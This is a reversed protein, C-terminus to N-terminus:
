QCPQSFFHLKMHKLTLTESLPPMNRHTRVTLVQTIFDIQQFWVLQTFDHVCKIIKFNDNGKVINTINSSPKDKVRTCLDCEPTGLEGQKRRTTTLSAIWLFRM